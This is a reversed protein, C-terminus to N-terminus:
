KANPAEVPVFEIDPFRRHPVLVENGCKCKHQCLPENAGGSGVLGTFKLEGQLCKTCQLTIQVVTVPKRRLYDNLNLHPVPPSPKIDEM